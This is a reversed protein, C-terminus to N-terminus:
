SSSPADSPLTICTSTVYTTLAQLDKRQSASLDSAIASMQKRDADDPISRIKEIALEFARRAEEPIGEPTGIAALRDATDKAMKIAEADSIDQGSQSQQIMDHFTGCFDKISANAPPGDASAAGDPAATSSSDSGACGTVLALVLLLAALLGAPLSNPKM